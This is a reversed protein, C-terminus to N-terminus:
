LFVEGQSSDVHYPAWIVMIKLIPDSPLDAHDYLHVPSEQDLWCGLLQSLYHRFWSADCEGFGIQFPDLVGM